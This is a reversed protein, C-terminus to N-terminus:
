QLTLKKPTIQNSKVGNLQGWGNNGWAWLKGDTDIALSSHLSSAVACTFKKDQMVTRYHLIHVKDGKMGVGLEGHSNYGWAYLRGDTDIALAHVHGTSISSFTKGEWCIESHHDLMDQYACWGYLKGNNDIAYNGGRIAYDSKMFALQSFAIGKRFQVPTYIVYGHESFSLRGGKNNGWGWFNGDVDIAAVYDYGAEIEVFKVGARVQAPTDQQHIGNGLGLCGGENGGTGWAWLNGYIDIAHTFGSGIAVKIFKRDPMIQVSKEVNVFWLGGDMDIAYAGENYVKIEKFKKEPMIRQLSNETNHPAGSGCIWLAGGTDIAYTTGTNSVVKSFRMDTFVHTPTLINQTAGDGVEGNVNSGWTWFEGNEDLALGKSAQVIKRDFPVHQPYYTMNLVKSDNGWAWLKGQVDIAYNNADSSEVCTFYKGAMIPVAATQKEKTGDGLQGKPNSGWGWLNGNEDLAYTHYGASIQAFKKEPMIAVPTLHTGTTGDGFGSYTNGWGWLHGDTDIGYTAGSWSSVSLFRKDTVVWIPTDAYNKTGDGLRGGSNNGWAWLKGAADIIFSCYTGAEAYVCQKGTLLRQPTTFTEEGWISESSPAEFKGWGWLGGDKDIALTHYDGASVSVFRADTQAAQPTFATADYEITTKEGNGIQGYSNDGWCWAKGDKDLAVRFTASTGSAIQAPQVTIKETPAEDPEYEPFYLEDEKDGSSSDETSSDESSSDEESSSTEESSGLATSEEMSSSDKVSVAGDNCAAGLAAFCALMISMIQIMKKKM